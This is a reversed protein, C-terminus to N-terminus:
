FLYLLFVGPPLFFKWLYCFLRKFIPKQVFIPFFIGLIAGPNYEFYIYYFCVQPCFIKLFGLFVRKFIPKKVFIQFFLAGLHTKITNIKFVIWASDQANKKWNKDLFWNKFPNKKTKKFFFAGLHTKVTNM